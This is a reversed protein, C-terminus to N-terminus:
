STVTVEKEQSTIVEISAMFRDAVIAVGMFFYILILVYTFGRAAKEGPTLLGDYNVGEAKM